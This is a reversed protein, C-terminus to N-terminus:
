AAEEVLQVSGSPPRFEIPHGHCGDGALCASAPRLMSFNIADIVFRASAGRAMARSDGRRVLRM